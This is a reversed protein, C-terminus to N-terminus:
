EVCNEPRILKVRAFGRGRSGSQSLCGPREEAGMNSLLAKVRTYSMNKDKVFDKLESLMVCDKQNGTVVFRKMIAGEDQIDELYDLTDRRVKACPVVPEDRYADIVWWTYAAVVEPRTLFSSKISDDALRHFPQALDSELVERSVFKYPFKVLLLNGAADKPTVEPIDNLNMVLKSGVRFPRENQYNKRGSMVDGGSQFGKLMNGDLKIKANTSDCKVENTFTLRTFECDMAWSLGKAADGANASLLFANANITNVYPGWALEDAKQIVGKGCNREGFMIAWQKDVFRGAMARAKLELVTRVVEPDGLTELLLRDYVERMVEPAPREPLDFPIVRTTFVEPREEFRFFRCRAFDWVGNRYCLVGTGSGFLQDPFTPDNPLMALTATVIRTAQPVDGSMRCTQGDALVKHINAGLCRAMLTRKVMSDDSTWVGDAKVWYVGNCCRAVDRIDAMFHVSAAEDDAAYRPARAISGTGSYISEPVEFRERTMDKVALRLRYGTRMYVHESARLLVEPTLETGSREVMCGDFVLVGVKRGVEPSEIFERLAMLSRNELDCLLHNVASGLVNHPDEKKEAAALYPRHQKLGFLAKRVRDMEADFARIWPTDRVGRKGPSAAGGNVIALLATKAVSPDEALEALVLPRDECYRRLAPCPVGHQECVQLLLSPHCNSFDLDEYFMFAIANRVERLMGQLGQNNKAFWRGRCEPRSYEVTVTGDRDARAHYKTIQERQTDPESDPRFRFSDYNELIYTLAAYCYREKLAITSAKKPM